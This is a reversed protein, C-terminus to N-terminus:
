NCDQAEFPGDYLDPDGDELARWVETREVCGLGPGARLGCEDDPQCCGDMTPWGGELAVEDDCQSSNTGAQALEICANGYALPFALGCTAETTCCLVSGAPADTPLACRMVGCTGDTPRETCISPSTQTCAWGNAVGCTANCGDGAVTNGDDCQEEDDVRGDGCEVPRVDLELGFTGFNAAAASDVVIYVRRTTNTDNFYTISAAGWDTCSDEANPDSCDTLLFLFPPPIAGAATQIM